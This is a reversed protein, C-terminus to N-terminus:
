KPDSELNGDSDYCLTIHGEDSDNGYSVYYGGSGDERSNCTVQYGSEDVDRDGDESM